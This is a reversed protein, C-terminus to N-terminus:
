SELHSNVNPNEELRSQEYVQESNKLSQTLVKNLMFFVTWKFEPQKCALM